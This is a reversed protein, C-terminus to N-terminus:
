KVVVLALVAVVVATLALGVAGYVIKELRELRLEITAFKAVGDSIKVAINEVAKEIKAASNEMVKMTAAYAAQASAIEQHHECVKPPM